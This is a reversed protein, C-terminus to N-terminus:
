VIDMVWINSELIENFEARFDPFNEYSDPLQLFMGCTRGIPRRTFDSMVTFEVTVSDSVILDSGTCFRLFKGLKEENLERIYRKLHHEVEKQKATMDGPFKLLRTVKKSTPKLDDYMKRLKEYHLSIQPKAIDRWCDIVFMPKQVLEKHSIEILISQLNEASARRRCEYNDLVELLDDAEISSFDQLAQRLIEREQCSVFQLFVETLDSYVVGFLMEEVFPSALKIPLYHCDQYGRLFIRGIAKWTDAKFDHRIFPVKVSTGLTCRDYFEQWFASFIDRLVGSGSGAEESNDPLLRRVTLQTTLTDPDSFAEIMDNFCNAHHITLMKTQPSHDPTEPQYILTDANDFDDEPNPGFTIEPDSINHPNEGLTVYDHLVVADDSLIEPLIFHVESAVMPDTTVPQNTVISQDSAVQQHPSDQDNDSYNPASSFSQSDSFEIIDDQGDFNSNVDTHESETSSVDVVSQQKTAIYFRLMPLKITDYITGISIDGSLSNQQFDWVDFTFDSEHGKSSVGNPFFLSKGEKLIDNYGGSINMVVKRTGGGQKARVQKIETNDQHIWGIEVTRRIVRRRSNSKSTKPEEESQKTEKRLKM